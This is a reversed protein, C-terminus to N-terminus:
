FLFNTLQEINKQTMKAGMSGSGSGSLSDPDPDLFRMIENFGSGIRIWFVPSSLTFTQQARYFSIIFCVSPWISASPTFMFAPDAPSRPALM